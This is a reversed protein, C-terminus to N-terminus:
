NAPPRSLIAIYNKPLGGGTYRVRCDAANAARRLTSNFLRFIRFISALYFGYFGGGFDKPSRPIHRKMLRLQHTVTAMYGDLWRIEDVTFGAQGFLYRLGFQTYRYFDYPQEHEEYWLPMTALVRGGPKLVRRLERLVTLPEPLHEMVQTFIVADYRADEVPIASLDCSYTPKVYQKDVKEFDASEYTAHSFLDIYPQGGSGADLIKSGPEITKSFALVETDIWDRSSNDSM